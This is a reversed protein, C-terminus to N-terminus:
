GSFTAISPLEVLRRDVTLITLDHVIATAALFADAPDAHPLPFERSRLAIECNLPAERVPLAAFSREVWHRPADDLEIRGKAALVCLEWVSIPSLWLPSGGTDIRHRIATPLRPSGTLYWIWVHTDLLDGRM